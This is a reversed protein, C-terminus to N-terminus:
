DFAINHTHSTCRVPWHLAEIVPLMVSTWLEQYADARPEQKIVTERMGRFGAASRNYADLHQSIKQLSSNCVNSLAVCRPKVSKSVVIIAHSIQDSAVFVVIPHAAAALSLSDFNSSRLLNEFGPLLRAEALTSRFADALQRRRGVAGDRAAGTLSDPLPQGLARAINTLSSGITHPIDNFQTRLQLTQSWFIGRGAELIELARDPQCLAIAHSAGYATLRGADIIITLRTRPGLCSSAVQPLLGVINSYVTLLKVANEHSFASRLSSELSLYTLVEQTNTMRRYASCYDNNLVLLLCDLAEDVGNANSSACLQVYALGCVARAHDPHADSLTGTLQQYIALAKAASDYEELVEFRIRLTKAYSLMSSSEDHASFVGTGSEAAKQHFMTAKILDEIRKTLNFRLLFTDGANCLANKHTWHASYEQVLQMAQDLDEEKNQQGYRLLLAETLNSAFILFWEGQSPVSQKAEKLLNICEDLHASDGFTKYQEGLFVALLSLRMLRASGQVEAVLSLHAAQTAAEVDEPMGLVLFRQYLADALISQLLARQSERMPNQPALQKSILTIARSIDEERAHQRFRENLAFVLVSDLMMAWGLPPDDLARLMGIVEDLASTDALTTGRIYLASALEYQVAYLDRSCSGCAENAEKAISIAEKLYSQDRTVALYYRTLGSSLVLASHIDYDGAEVFLHYSDRSRDVSEQLLSTDADFLRYYVRLTLGLERSHFARESSSMSGNDLLIQRHVALAEELGGKDELERSRERIVSGLLSSSSKPLMNSPYDLAARLCEEAEDLDEVERIHQFRTYLAFGLDYHLHLPSSMLEEVHKADAIVERLLDIRESLFHLDSQLASYAKELARIRELRPDKISPVLPTWAFAANHILHTWASLAYSVFISFM